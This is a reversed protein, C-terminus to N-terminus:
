NPVVPGLYQPYESLAGKISFCILHTCSIKLVIKMLVMKKQQITRVYISVKRRATDQARLKAIREKFAYDKEEPIYLQKLQWDKILPANLGPVVM